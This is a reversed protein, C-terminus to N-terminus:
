FLLFQTLFHKLSQKLLDINLTYPKDFIPLVKNIMLELVLFVFIMSYEIILTARKLM